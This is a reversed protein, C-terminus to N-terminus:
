RPKQGNPQINQGSAETAHKWRWGSAASGSFDFFLIIGFLAFEDHNFCNQNLDLELWYNEM